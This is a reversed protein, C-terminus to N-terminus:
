PALVVWTRAGFDHLARGSRTFLGLLVGLGLLLFSPISLAARLASRGPSPRRGDPGAVRLGLLRSGPTAGMLSLGLWQYAFAAVIALTASPLLVGRSRTLAEVLSALSTDLPLDARTLIPALLVGVFLGLLVVDVGWAAARRWPPARHLHVEIADVDADIELDPGPEAPEARPAPTEVPAPRAPIAAIPPPAARPIPPPRTAPAAAPREGAVAPGAAAPSVEARPVPSPAGPRPSASAALRQAASTAAPPAATSPASRRSPAPAEGRSAVPPAAERASPEAPRHPPPTRLDVRGLARRYRGPRPPPQIPAIAALRMRDGEPAAGRSGPEAPPEMEWAAGLAVDGRGRRDLDLPADLRSPVPEEPLTLPAGCADCRASAEEV